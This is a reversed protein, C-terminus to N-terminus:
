ENDAKSNNFMQKTLEKYTKSPNDTNVSATAALVAGSIDYMIGSRIKRAALIQWIVQDLQIEDDLIAKMGPYGFYMGYEAILMHQDDIGDHVPSTDGKLRKVKELDSDSLQSQPNM